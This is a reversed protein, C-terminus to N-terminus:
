EPLGARLRKMVDELPVASGPDRDHESLREDIMKSEDPTLTAEDLELARQIVLERQDSTLTELNELIETLSM